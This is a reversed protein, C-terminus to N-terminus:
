KNIIEGIIVDKKIKKLKVPIIKGVFDENGEVAVNIYNTTLGTIINKDNNVNVRDEFLVDLTKDIFRKRYKLMLDDAIKIMKESRLNKINPHVQNKFKAAPTGKRPSYKFVHIQSFNIEKVFKCTTNFEEDTEGPFGVIIDTTIAIDPIAKRLNLVINRYEETTYKRSMRKLTEDCGSQLSLHLHNCFKPLLKIEEIFKETILNPEVSSLRIREIGEVDHVAKIVDILNKDKLDKGYSAIHIGTLVIEKFGNNSLRKVESIINEFKRSRVPGRAYPIICYSCFQNCGEQIKLFARTKGKIKEISLEEFEDIKMINDVHNAKEDIDIAEILEVIENRKNTGIVLNVGEIKLVEESATQAYCGAVVIKAKPNKKKARRIFQRSKRDSLNTVTCTNIVYIDAFEHSDVVKYGRKEFLEAMAETDYQNVKCGLTYFAVTKM